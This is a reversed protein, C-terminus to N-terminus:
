SSAKDAPRDPLAKILAAVADADHNVLALLPSRGARLGPNPERVWDWMQEAGVRKQLQTLVGELQRAYAAPPLPGAHTMAGEWHELVTVGATLADVPHVGADLQTRVGARVVDIVHATADRLRDLDRDNARDDFHEDPPLSMDEEKIVGATAPSAPKRAAAIPGVDRQRIAPDCPEPNGPPDTRSYSDAPAHGAAIAWMEYASYAQLLIDDPYAGAHLTAAVFEDIVLAFARAEAGGLEVPAPGAGRNGTAQGSTESSEGDM